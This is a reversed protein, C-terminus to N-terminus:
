PCNRVVRLKPVNSNDLDGDEDVAELYANVLGAVGMAACDIDDDHDVNPYTTFQSIFDVHETKCHVQLNSAPGSLISNIRVPKSRIDDFTQVTFWQMRKKMENELIWKLVRQYAVGEVIVKSPRYKLALTFFTALTWSPTHGRMRETALLFLGKKNKRWVQHVEFDNKSVRGKKVADPSPPPVPDISYVTQGDTPDDQFYQLWESRFLCSEKSVIRVEKERLFLSLKNIKVANTKELRREASPHREPWISIQQELPADETEKTWCSFRKTVWEPDDVARMAVDKVHQPTNLMVLKANPADARPALSNKLASLVLDNIKERQEETAANEDTLVDDLVILDPRYDDFNIGRINGTIGAGLIWIPRADTQHFIELETDTWKVGQKLNFVQALLPPALTGDGMKRQEIANRIWRISRMAHAESSGVYLITRSINYAIRKATFLRLKTTKASDRFCLINVLRSSPNGLTEDIERHFAPSKQRVAKPFFTRAFLDDDVACLKVLEDTQITVGDDNTGTPM